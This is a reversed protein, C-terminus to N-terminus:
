KKIKALPKKRWREVAQELCQWYTKVQSKERVAEIFPRAQDYMRLVVNYNAERLMQEDYIGQRLGVFVREWHNLVYRVSNAKDSHEEGGNALTRINIGSGNHLEQLCRYGATLKEDSRTGFLLDATQKKKATSKVSIVSVVAVLVATLM